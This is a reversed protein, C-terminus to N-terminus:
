GESGDNNDPLRDLPSAVGRGGRNLVHTYVMTTSVDSHGLLEQVTRIDYGAELLHTAFSHRLTHPTAPKAIGSARLAERMARQFSQDSIHHRRMIGTRPDVSRRDAPFVYQWAWENAATPYKRALAFPMWAAGFGDQLDMRHLRKAEILHERLVPFLRDPLMTVRDKAGKGDRVLIERRSFDVDKVRLRLAEMIRMGTGYLLDGIVRHTGRMRTLVDAVETRTLVVPLRSPTKARVVGDLWPLERSLVERYLFLLASQAQNQTSAAVHGVSALHTLFQEVDRSSLDVPHRNRNFKIFRRIWDIYAQETRISYHKFRIRARVQDLLRPAQEQM